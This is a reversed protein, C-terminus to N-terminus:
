SGESDLWRNLATEFDRFQQGSMGLYRDSRPGLRWRRVTETDIGILAAAHATTLAYRNMLLRLKYNYNEVRDAGRGNWSERNIESALTRLEGLDRKSLMPERTPAEIYNDGAYIELHRIYRKLLERYGM